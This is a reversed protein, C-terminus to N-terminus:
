SLLRDSDRIVEVFVANIRRLLESFAERPWNFSTTKRSNHRIIDEFSFLHEHDLGFEIQDQPGLRCRFRRHISTIKNLHEDLDLM